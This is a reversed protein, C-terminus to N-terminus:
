ISTAVPLDVVELSFPLGHVGLAEHRFTEAFEAAGVQTCCAVIHLKNVGNNLLLLMLVWLSHRM